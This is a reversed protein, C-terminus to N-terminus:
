TKHSCNLTALGIKIKHDFILTFQTKIVVQTSIQLVYQRMFIQSFVFLDCLVLKSELTPYM